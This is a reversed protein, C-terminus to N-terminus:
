AGLHRAIRELVVRITSLDDAVGSLYDRLLSISHETAGNFALVLGVITGVWMLVEGMTHWWRLHEGVAGVVALAFALLAGLYWLQWSIRRYRM